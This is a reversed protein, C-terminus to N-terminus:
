NVCLAGAVKVCPLPSPADTRWANNHNNGALSLRGDMLIEFLM